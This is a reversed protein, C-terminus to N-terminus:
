KISIEAEINTFKIKDGNNLKVKENNKVRKGNLFTGNKSKDIYYLSEEEWFFIGHIRSVYPGTDYPGIDIVPTNSFDSRGITIEEINKDLKFSVGNNLVLYFNNGIEIETNEIKLKNIIVGCEPCKTSDVPITSGCNYCKM